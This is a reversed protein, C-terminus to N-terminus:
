SYRILCQVRMSATQVTSSAGFISNNQTASFRVQTIKGSPTDAVGNPIATASGEGIFAGKCDAAKITKYFLSNNSLDQGIEGYINPFQGFLESAKLKPRAIASIKRSASCACKERLLVPRSRNHDRARGYGIFPVRVVLDHKTRIQEIANVACGSRNM